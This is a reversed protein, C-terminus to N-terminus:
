NREYVRVWDVEMVTPFGEQTAESPVPCRDFGQYVGACNYSVHPRRLGLSLTVRMPLYWYINAKEAVKVGDLYWSIVDEGVEVGYIHFDDRPDFDAHVTNKTLEPHTGPRKWLSQNNELVRTHLNMDIVEPGHWQNLDFDWESQQLEVVDVEAYNPEGDADPLLGEAAVDAHLSYLWFAPSNGPFTATGKIRAEYYGYTQYSRSRLIGSKYFLEVDKLSGDGAWTHRATNHEEYRMQIKLVNNEQWVNDPEWSWPGWDAINHNWKGTDIVDDNFEDSRAEVYFWADKNVGQMTPFFGDSGDPAPSEVPVQSPAPSATPSPVPAPTYSPAASPLASPEVSPEASPQAEPEASPSVVPAPSPSLENSSNDGGCAVLALALAGLSFTNVANM